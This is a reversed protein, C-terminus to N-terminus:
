PQPSWRPAPQSDLYWWGTVPPERVSYRCWIPSVVGDADPFRVNSLKPVRRSGLNERLEDPLDRRGSIEGGMFPEPSKPYEKKNEDYNMEPM